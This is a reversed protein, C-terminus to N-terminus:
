EARSVSYTPTGSSILKVVVADTVDSDRVDVVTAGPYGPARYCNTGGVTPTSGNVTFYVDSTGDSLVEVSKPMRGWGPTGPDGVVFTVTDVVSGVLTKEHAGIHGAPVTYSAM